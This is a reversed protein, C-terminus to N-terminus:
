KCVTLTLTYEITSINKTLRHKDEWASGFEISAIGQHDHSINLSDELVAYSGEVSVADPLSQALRFIFDEGMGPNNIVVLRVPILFKQDRGFEEVGSARTSTIIRHYVQLQWTDAPNVRDRRTAMTVPYLEAQGNVLECLGYYKGTFKAQLVSDVKNIIEKLSDIM